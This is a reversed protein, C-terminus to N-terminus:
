AQKMKKSIRMQMFSLTVLILGLVIGQASAFGFRSPQFNRMYYLIQTVPVHTGLAPTAATMKLVLVFAQMSGLITLISVLVFVPIMLPATIHRFRQWSSAGDVRAAEYLQQPITQLGALLIIFGWGFGKWSHIIAVCTLATQPEALWARVLHGLGTASLTYNLLGSYPEFIWKWILAVVVESLVPPIFFVLRYFNGLKIQRDCAMALVLALANQFTLAILTIYAAHRLAPWWYPNEFLLEKYNALGVFQRVSSIGNWSHLGLNFIEYFPYIYFAAFIVVAPLIFLYNELTAKARM